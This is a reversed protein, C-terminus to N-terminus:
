AMMKSALRFIWSFQYLHGFPFRSDAFHRPTSRAEYLRKTMAYVAVPLKSPASAIVPKLLNQAAREAGWHCETLRRKLKRRRIAAGYHCYRLFMSLFFNVSQPLWDFYRLIIDIDVWYRCYGILCTVRNKVKERTVREDFILIEGISRQSFPTFSARAYFMHGHAFICRAARYDDRSFHPWCHLLLGTIRWRCQPASAMRINLAYYYDIDHCRMATIGWMLRAEYMSLINERNQRFLFPLPLPPM